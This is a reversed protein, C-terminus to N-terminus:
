GAHQHLHVGQLMVTPGAGDPFYRTAFARLLAEDDAGATRDPDDPDIPEGCTTTAGSSSARCTM